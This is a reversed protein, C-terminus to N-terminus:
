LVHLPNSEPRRGLFVQRRRGLPGFGTGETLQHGEDAATAELQGGAHGADDTQPAVGLGGGLRGEAVSLLVGLPQLNLQRVELEFVLLQLLINCLELSQSLPLLLALAPPVLLCHGPQLARQLRRSFIRLVRDTLEPLLVGLLQLLEFFPQLLLQLLFLGAEDVIILSLEGVKFFQLRPPHSFDVLLMVLDEEIPDTLQLFLKLLGFGLMGPFEGLTGQFVLLLQIFSVLPMLTDPHGDFAFSLGFFLQVLRGLQLTGLLSFLKQRLEAELLVQFHVEFRNYVLAVLFDSPEPVGETIFVGFEGQQKFPSLFQQGL